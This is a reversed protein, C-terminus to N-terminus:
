GHVSRLIVYLSINFTTNQIENDEDAVWEFRLRLNSRLNPYISVHTKHLDQYTIIM